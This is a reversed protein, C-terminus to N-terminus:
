PLREAPVTGTVTTGAGPESTVALTGGIAELRDAMGQMGTGHATANTNFGRGDDTVTFSLHGNRQALRVTASTAEAYKAVNNLAELTCFYVASEVDRPYRGVADADLTTPVAAKRAQAELAAALGQDALLPPYIGRALDRLDDLAESARSQLSSALESARDPDGAATRALLGLQVNLAVLQQQVGDHLNREIKRREEDQAAVLRQRSARLEEILRVNRLVLGAQTALDRVLREKQPTMPDGPPMQVVIAGLIEGRDVVETAHEDPFNPLGGHELSREAPMPGDPWAAEPRLASAVRVWVSAREAGIASALVNVMRPLVDDAAYSEGVRDTFSALVEYPTARQGYVLRDALRRARDRLPQFAIAVGVAALLNAARGELLTGALAVIAVYVATITTALIAVLATRRVVRDLEYLRYRLIAVVCALPIGLGLAAVLTLGFLGNLTNLWSSEWRVNSEVITGTVMTAVLAAAAIAGVFALWRIQQRQEEGSGRYRVILAILSAFACALLAFGTMELMPDLVGKLSAIALPNTVSAGGARERMPLLTFGGVLVLLAIGYVWGVPRWRPSPLGGTPFLLFVAPFLALGIFLPVEAVVTLAFGGLALGRPAAVEGYASGLFSLTLSAVIGLLVWGILNGTRSAILAGMAALGAVGVVVVVTLVLQDGLTGSQTSTSSVVIAVVTLVVSLIAVPWALRRLAMQARSSM